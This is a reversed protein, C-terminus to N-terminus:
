RIAAPLEDKALSTLRYLSADAPVLPRWGLERSAEDLTIPTGNAIASAVGLLGVTLLTIAVVMELLSFGRESRSASPRRQPNNPTSTQM